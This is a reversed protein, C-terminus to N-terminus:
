QKGPLRGPTPWDPRPLSPPQHRGRIAALRVEEETDDYSIDEDVDILSKQNLSVAETAAELSTGDTFDLTADEARRSAPLLLNLCRALLLSPPRTPSLCGPRADSPPPPPVLQPGLCRDTLEPNAALVIPPVGHMPLAM